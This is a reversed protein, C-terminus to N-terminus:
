FSVLCHWVYMYAMADNDQWVKKVLEEDGMIVPLEAKKEDWPLCVNPDIKPKPEQSM